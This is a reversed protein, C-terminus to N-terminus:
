TLIQKLADIVRDQDDETLGFYLPLSIAERYYQEAQPFDGEKFGLNRYYPQLHVPIYHVNVEISASHLEEFVQRHTKSIKELKLQIVYLHFSSHRDSCRQPLTLPL